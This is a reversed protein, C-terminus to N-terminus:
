NSIAAKGKETVEYVPPNWVVFGHPGLMTDEHEPNNEQYLDGYEPEPVAGGRLLMALLIKTEIETPKM